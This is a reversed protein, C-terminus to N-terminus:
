VPSHNIFANDHLRRLEDKECCLEYRDEVIWLHNPTPKWCKVNISGHLVKSEAFLVERWMFGTIRRRRKLNM